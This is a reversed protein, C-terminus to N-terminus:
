FWEGLAALYYESMNTAAYICGNDPSSQYGPWVNVNCFPSYAPSTFPDAIRVTSGSSGFGIAQTAHRASSSQHWVYHASSVDVAVYTPFVSAAVDLDIWSALQTASTATSAVYHFTFGANALQTNTWPLAASEYCSGSSCGWQGAVYTQKSLVSPTIWTSGAKFRLMSQVVAPLCWFTTKQHYQAFGTLYGSTALPFAGGDPGALTPVLAAAAQLKADAYAQTYGLQEPTMGATTGAIGVLPGGGGTADGAPPPTTVPDMALAPPAALAALLLGALLAPKLPQM